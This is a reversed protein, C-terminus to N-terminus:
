NKNQQPIITRNMIGMQHTAMNNWELTNNNNLKDNEKGTNQLIMM